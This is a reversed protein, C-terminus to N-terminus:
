GVRSPVCGSDTGAEPLHPHDTALAEIIAAVKKGLIDRGPRARAAALWYAEISVERKLTTRL